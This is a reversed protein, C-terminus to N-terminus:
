RERDDTERADIIRLEYAAASRVPEAAGPLQLVREFNRKAEASHGTLRALHALRLLFMPQKPNRETARRYHALAAQNDGLKEEVNALNFYHVSSPRYTGARPVFAQGGVLMALALAPVSAARLAYTAFAAAHLRKGTAVLGPGAAFALPVALPVRNQASTFWLLNAALVALLQGLLLVCLARRQLRARDAVQGAKGEGEDKQWLAVLGLTGLGLLVGFPLGMPSIWGLLEREGYLDYDRIFAHNGITLWLKKAELALWDIPQSGIYDLAMAYLTHGLAADLESGTQQLGLKEALEERERFVQGSLLGGADNWRGTAHPNNGIYFPVGGGHSPLVHPKGIVLQNRLAMPALALAVGLACAALLPLAPQKKARALQALAYGTFPLALALNARGLVCLGSTVGLLLAARRTLTRSAAVFAAIAVMNCAVGVSVSLYKNEYFALSPYALLALVSWAGIQPGLAAIMARSLAGLALLALTLQLCLGAIPANQLAMGAALVYAYLGQLYLPLSGFPPHALLDRAATEYLQGDSVTVQAFPDRLLFAAHYAVRWLAFFGVAVCLAVLVRSRPAPEQQVRPAPM